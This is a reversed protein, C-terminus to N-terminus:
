RPTGGLRAKLCYGRSNLRQSWSCELEDKSETKLTTVSRPFLPQGGFRRPRQEDHELNSAAFLGDATEEPPGAKRLTPQRSFPLLSRLWARSSRNGRPDRAHRGVFRRPRADPPSVGYEEIASCIERRM